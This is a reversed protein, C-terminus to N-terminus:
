SGWGTLLLLVLATLAGSLACFPFFAASMVFQRWRDNM